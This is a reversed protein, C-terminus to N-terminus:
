QPRLVQVAPPKNDGGPAAPTETAPAAPAESAPPQPPQSADLPATKESSSDSDSLDVASDTPAPDSDNTDSAPTDNDPAAAPTDDSKSETKDGDAKAAQHMTIWRDLEDSDAPLVRTEEGDPFFLVPLEARDASSGTEERIRRLKDAAATACAEDPKDESALGYLLYDRLAENPNHHCTIAIARQTSSDDHTYLYRYLTVDSISGIQEELTKCMSCDPATMIWLRRKGDGKTEKLALESALAAFQGDGTKKGPKAPPDDASKAAPQAPAEETALGKAAAIAERRERTINLADPVAIIDAQFIYGGDKSVYLIENNGGKFSIEYIDSSFPVTAIADIYEVMAATNRGNKLAALLAEQVDEPPPAPQFDAATAFHSALLILLTLKKM